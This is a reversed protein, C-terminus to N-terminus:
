NSASPRLPQCSRWEINIQWRHNGEQSRGVTKGIRSNRYGKKKYEHKNGAWATPSLGAHLCCVSLSQDFGANAVKRPKTKLIAGLFKSIVHVFTGFGIFFGRDYRGSYSPLRLNWVNRMENESMLLCGVYASNTLTEM